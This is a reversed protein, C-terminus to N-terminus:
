RVMRMHFDRSWAGAKAGAVTLGAYEAAAGGDAAADDDADPLGARARLLSRAWTFNLGGGAQTLFLDLAAVRDLAVAWELPSLNGQSILEPTSPPPLPGDEASGGGGGGGLAAALKAAKAKAEAAAAASSAGSAAAVLCGSRRMM